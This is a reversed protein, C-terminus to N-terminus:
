RKGPEEEPPIGGAIEAARMQRYVSRMTAYPDLSNKQLEQRLVIIRANSELSGGARVVLGDGLRVFFPWRPPVYTLPDIATDFADGLLDRPPEPGLIPLVLFPGEGLGYGALTEGFDAQHYPIGADSAVDFIGGIGVTSNMTFRAFSQAAHTPEGELLDNAFVVPTELNSFFHDLGHRLPAPMWLIYFGAVPLEVYRDFKENFDFVQRNTPEFPDNAELAEPSTSVCGALALSWMVVIIAGLGRM